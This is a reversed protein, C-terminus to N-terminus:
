GNTTARGRGLTTSSILSVPAGLSCSYPKTGTKQWESKPRHKLLATLSTTKILNLDYSGSSFGVIPVQNCWEDIKQRQAKPLLFVDERVFEARVQARINKGRRELEEMFKRVLEAPDRECIHTPERELTDGVSVSIPVHANEITLARTPEKRYNKDGYAEIVEYGSEPLFATRNLTAQYLQEPTKGNKIIMQERYRPFCKPCGHFPCGHYQFVTRTEHNYGDVPSSKMIGSERALWREGGHRFRAHHIHIGRQKAERELWLLAQRSATSNPYFVKEFATQPAEVKEGPCYIVTKGASCTQFHRQLNCVKTFRARCHTCEYTKALKTIDKILFAHGEYISITLINTLKPNANRRLHWVVEGEEGREPEYVRIGLWASVATGQNLHTEVKDLEDLSTKPHDTPMPKLKYFSQALSRAEKTSRDVRAGRHVAICRWLCLNDKYTDLAVMTGGRGRARNRLWDPLPGTGVLPQRDLVVKLDVNFFSEFVWKTNPRAVGELELRSKEQRSLWEEAEELRNIWPSGTNKYFLIVTEEEDEINRLQYSFVHRLYFATSVNERIKAMFNTTLDKELGRIFRWRIYRRGKSEQGDHRADDFLDLIENQYDTM